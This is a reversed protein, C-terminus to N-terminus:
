NPGPLRLGKTRRMAPLQLEVVIRRMAPLEQLEKEALQKEKDALEREKFTLAIARHELTGEQSSITLRRNCLDERTKRPCEREMELTPRVLVLTM